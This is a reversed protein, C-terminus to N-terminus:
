SKFILLLGNVVLYVKLHHYFKKMRDVQLKARQYRELLEQNEM